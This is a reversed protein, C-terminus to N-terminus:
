FRFAGERVLEALPRRDNPKERARLQDPLAAPDGRRGVAIFVELRHGPLIELAATARERDFGGMAHAAWGRLHAQLAFLAWAAGADFSHSASPVPAEKGPVDVLERSVLALLAAARRAWVQNGPALVSVFREFEPTGRRAYVFRWPQSNGGSPAWRAAELITMLEAVPMEDDAFARPSWRELFLLDVPHDPHRPSGTSNSM